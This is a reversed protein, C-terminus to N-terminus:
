ADVRRNAPKIPRLIPLRRLDGPWDLRTYALEVEEEAVALALADFTPGRWSVPHAARAIWCNLVSGDAALQCVAVDRADRPPDPSEDTRAKWAPFPVVRQDNM